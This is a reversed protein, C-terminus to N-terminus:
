VLRQRTKASAMADAELRWQRCPAVMKIGTLFHLAVSRRVPDFNTSLQQQRLVCAKDEAVAAYNKMLIVRGEVAEPALHKERLGHFEKPTGTLPAHDIIRM